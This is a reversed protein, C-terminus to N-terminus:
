SGAVAAVSRRKSEFEATVGARDRAQPCREENAGLRCPVGRAARPLRHFRYVSRKLRLHLERVEREFEVRKGRIAFRVKTERERIAIRLEDELSAIQQQLEHIRTDM